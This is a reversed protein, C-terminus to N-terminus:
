SDRRARVALPTRWDPQGSWLTAVWGVVQVGTPIAIVTSAAAFYGMALPAIGTAYMHHAWLGFSLFGTAIIALVM